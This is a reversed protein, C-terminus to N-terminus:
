QNVVQFLYENHVIPNGKPDNLIIWLAPFQPGACRGSPIVSVFGSSSVTLCGFHEYELRKSGTYDRVRGKPDTITVSLQVSQGNVLKPLKLEIDNPDLRPPPVRSQEQSGEVRVGDISLSIRYRDDGIPQAILPQVFGFLLVILPIVAHM